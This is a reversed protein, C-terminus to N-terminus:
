TIPKAESLGQVVIAAVLLFVYLALWLFAIGPRALRSGNRWPWLFMALSVAAGCALWAAEHHLHVGRASRKLPIYFDNSVVAIPGYIFLGGALIMRLKRFRAAVDVVKRLPRAIRQREPAPPRAKAHESSDYSNYPDM